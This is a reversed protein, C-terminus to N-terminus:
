QRKEQAKEREREWRKNDDENFLFMKNRTERQKNTKSIQEIMPQTVSKNFLSDSFAHSFAYTNHICLFIHLSVVVNYPLLVLLFSSVYFFLFLAILVSSGFLPERCITQCNSQQRQKNTQRQSFWRNKLIVKAQQTHTHASRFLFVKDSKNTSVNVHTAWQAHM